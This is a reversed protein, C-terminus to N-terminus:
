DSSETLIPSSKAFLCTVKDQRAPSALVPTRVGISQQGIADVSAVDPIRRAFQFGRAGSWLAFAGAADILGSANDGLAFTWGYREVQREGGPNLAAQLEINLSRTGVGGRNM